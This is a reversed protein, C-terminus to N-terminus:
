IHWNTKFFLVKWTKDIPRVFCNTFTDSQARPLQSLVIKLNKVHINTLFIGKLKLGRYFIEFHAGDWGVVVSKFSICSHYDSLIIYVSFIEVKLVKLRNEQFYQSVLQPLM